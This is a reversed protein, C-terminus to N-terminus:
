GDKGWFFYSQIAGRIPYLCLIAGLKQVVSSLLVVWSFCKAPSVWGGKYVHIFSYLESRNAKTLPGSLERVGASLLPKM